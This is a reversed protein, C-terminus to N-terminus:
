NRWEMGKKKKWATGGSRGPACRARYPGTLLRLKLNKEAAFSDGAKTVKLGLLM